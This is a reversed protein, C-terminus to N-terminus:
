QMTFYRAVAIVLVRLYSCVCLSASYFCVLLIIWLLVYCDRWLYRANDTKNYYITFLQLVSFRQSKKCAEMLMTMLLIAYIRLRISSIFNYKSVFNGRTLCLIHRCSIFEKRKNYLLWIFVPVPNSQLM